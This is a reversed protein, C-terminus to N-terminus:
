GKRRWRNPFIHTKWPFPQITYHYDKVIIIQVLKVPWMSFGFPGCRAGLGYNPRTHSLRDVCGRPNFGPSFLFMVCPGAFFKVKNNKINDVYKNSLFLRSNICLFHVTLEATWDRQMCESKSGFICFAQEHTKRKRCHQSQVHPAENNWRTRCFHPCVVSLWLVPRIWTTITELYFWM